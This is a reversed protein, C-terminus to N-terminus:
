KVRRELEAAEVYYVAAALRENHLYNQDILTKKASGM